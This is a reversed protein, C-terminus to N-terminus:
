DKKDIQGPTQAPTQGPTQGGQKSTWDTWREGHLKELWEDYVGPKRPGGGTPDSKRAYRRVRTESSGWEPTLAGERSAEAVTGSGRLGSVAAVIAVSWKGLGDFFQRRTSREEDLQEEPDPTTRPDDSM